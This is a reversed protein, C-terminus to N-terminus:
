VKARATANAQVGTALAAAAAAPACSKALKTLGNLPVFGPAGSKPVPPPAPLVKGPGTRGKPIIWHPGSVLGDDSFTPPPYAYSSELIRPKLKRRNLPAPQAFSPSTGKM